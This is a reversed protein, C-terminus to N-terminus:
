DTALPTPRYFATSHLLEDALAASCAARSQTPKVSVATQQQCASIQHQLVLV